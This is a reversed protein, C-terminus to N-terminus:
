IGLKKRRAEIHAQIGDVAKVADNEVNLLAATVGECGKDADVARCTCLADLGQTLLSEPQM